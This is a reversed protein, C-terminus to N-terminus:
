RAGGGEEKRGLRPSSHSPLIAPILNTTEVQSYVRGQWGAMFGASRTSDKALTFM